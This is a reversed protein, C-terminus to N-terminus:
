SKVSCSAAPRIEYCNPCSVVVANKSIQMTVGCNACGVYVKSNSINGSSSNQVVLGKVLEPERKPKQVLCRRGLRSPPIAPEVYTETPHQPPPSGPLPREQENIEGIGAMSQRARAITPDERSRSTQLMSQYPASLSLSADSFDDSALTSADMPRAAPKRNSESESESISENTDEIIRGIGASPPPKPAAAVAATVPIRRGVAAAPTVRGRRFRGAAGESTYTASTPRIAVGQSARDGNYNNYPDSTPEQRIANPDNARMFQQLNYAEEQQQGSPANQRSM